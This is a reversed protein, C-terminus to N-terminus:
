RPVNIVIVNKRQSRRLIETQALEQVSANEDVDNAGGWLILTM